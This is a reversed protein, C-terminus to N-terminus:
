ACLIRTALGPLLPLLALPLPLPHPLPTSPTGPRLPTRRARAAGARWIFSDGPARLLEQGPPIGVGRPTM